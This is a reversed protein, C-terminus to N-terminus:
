VDIMEADDALIEDAPGWLGEYVTAGARARRTVWQVGKASIIQDAVPRSSPEPVIMWRVVNDLAELDNSDIMFNPPEALEGERQYRAASPKKPQTVNRHLALPDGFDSSSDSSYFDEFSPNEPPTTISTDRAITSADSSFTASTEM